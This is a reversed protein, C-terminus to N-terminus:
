VCESHVRSLRVVLVKRREALGCRRRSEQYHLLIDTVYQPALMTHALRRCMSATRVQPTLLSRVDETSSLKLMGISNDLSRLFAHLSATTQGLNSMLATYTPVDRGGQLTPLCELYEVAPFHGLAKAVTWPFNIYVANRFMKKLELGAPDERHVLTATMSYQATLLRRQAHTYTPPPRSIDGFVAYRM